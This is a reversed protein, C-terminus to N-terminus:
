KLTFLYLLQNLAGLMEDRLNLLDSDKQPTLGKVVDTMLHQVCRKIFVVAQKESLNTIKISGQKETMKPRGYKGMYVEVFEDITKDLTDLVDDTAKHRSYLHTQWHYLKIQERMQFFFHIAAASM